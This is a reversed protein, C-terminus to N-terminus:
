EIREFALISEENVNINVDKGTFIKDSFFDKWKTDPPFKVLKETQNKVTIPAILYKDGLLFQDTVKELGCNPFEYEMYRLIPEGTKSANKALNLIYNVFESRIKLCKRMTERVSANKSNWYRYSFQIMPMFVTAQCFRIFLEDDFKCGDGYDVVNGGGVMDACGYLYGSIGQTLINPVVTSLGYRLFGGLQYGSDRVFELGWIHAKDALRQVCHQGGYKYCARTELIYNDEKDDLVDVWLTTLYNAKKYPKELYCEDGCDFKFGDIGYKEKLSDTVTNFWKKAYPKEFDLVYSVGDFWVAKILEGSEDKLFADNEKLISTIPLDMSVYPVMWVAVKFGMFHLKDVMEKPNDFKTKDFDWEGYDAQWGDDIILLGSDYGSDKYNQAYELVGKQTQNKQLDVWTNLQPKSFLVESPIKGNPPFKKSTIKLHAEKLSSSSDDFIFDDSEVTIIGDNFDVVGGDEVWLYRGKSSIFLPAIQNCTSNKSLDVNYKSSKDLPFLYGDNVIGCYWYENNLITIKQKNM